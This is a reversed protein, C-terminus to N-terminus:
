CGTPYLLSHRAIREGRGRQSRFRGLSRSMQVIDSSMTLFPLYHRLCHPGRYPIELGSCRARRAFAATVTSSEMPGQPARAQLFLQRYLSCPRAKKLYEVLVDGSADILPLVLPANTKRNLVQIKGARWDIDDLTISAIECARLGYTAVLFFITYDRIGCPNTRDISQLFARVVDRPLSRPLKELRYIRPMDIERHLPERLIGREDQFRLFSRLHGVVNRLSYRTLRKACICIFGEIEKSGLESLAKLDTDFAVYELFERSYILHRQITGSTLGRVDKLYELYRNLETGTPTTPPCSPLALGRTEQLFREIQRVTTCIAFRRHRYYCRARQLADHTIDDLRQVGHQHLFHDIRVTHRIPRVVSRTSYGRDCFTLKRCSQPVV